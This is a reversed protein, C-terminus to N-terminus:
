VEYMIVYMNGNKNGVQDVEFATDSPILVEMENVRKNCDGFM